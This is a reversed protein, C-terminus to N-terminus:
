DRARTGDSLGQFGPSLLLGRQGQEHLLGPPRLVFCRAAPMALTHAPVHLDLVAVPPDREFREAKHHHMCALQRLLVGLGIRRRLRLFGLGDNRVHLVHSGAPEGTLRIGGRRDRLILV